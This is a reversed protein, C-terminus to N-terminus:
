FLFMKEFYFFIQFVNKIETKDLYPLTFPNVKASGSRDQINVNLTCLTGIFMTNLFSNCLTGIFMTNLFSNCLTGIFM